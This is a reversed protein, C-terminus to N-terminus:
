EHKLNQTEWHPWVAHMDCCLAKNGDLWDLVEPDKLTHSLERIGNEEEALIHACLECGAGGHEQEPHEMMRLFMEAAAKGDSAAAIAWGHYNCLGSGSEPRPHELWSSQQNKLFVCIVCGGKGAIQLMSQYTLPRTIKM